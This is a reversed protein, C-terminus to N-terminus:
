RASVTTVITFHYVAPLGIPSEERAVGVVYRGYHLGVALRSRTTWRGAVQTRSIGVRGDWRGLRGATSAFHERSLGPADSYSYEARLQATSDRGLVRGDFAGALALGDGSGVGPRWLFSTLGMRGDVHLLGQMVLGADIGLASRHSTDLEGSQYRVAIGTTLNPAPRRAAVASVVLISYPMDGGISQPDTDTRVIGQVSARSVTFGGTVERPGAMAVSVIQGAVGQDDGTTLSSISFRARVKPALMISAPNRFGDGTLVSLAPGEALSGLPFELLDRGPIQQARGALPVVVLLAAWFEKRRMSKLYRISTVFTLRM